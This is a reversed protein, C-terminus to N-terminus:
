GSSAIPLHLTVRTGRGPASELAFTGGVHQVQERVSFLGFSRARGELEAPDFGAGDDHVVVGLHAGDRRLTVTVEGTMAHKVVNTLLERVSRFALREVDDGLREWPEEHRVRVRLHHRRELQEGLWGVAAPLGLDYLVPPSLEFTLERTDRLAADVLRIGEALEKAVAGSAAPLASKFRLLALALAQGVNDHLEAALARRQQEEAVTAAFAMQQLNKQYAAIRAESERRRSIDSIFLVVLPGDEGDMTSLSVEVPFRTGDKRLAQLAQTEVRRPRPDAIYSARHRAHASRLEEPVLADVAVGVLEGRGYGFTQEAMANAWAVHGAASAFFISESAAELMHRLARERRAALAEDRAATTEVGDTM